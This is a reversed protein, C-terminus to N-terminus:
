YPYPSTPAPTPGPAPAPSTASTSAKATVAHWTGGFSQIGNGNAQGKASDGAFRYLPEGRLAVQFKGDPRKFVSLKGQIGSAARVKTHLSKVTLPPWFGECQTSKCLLHSKTEPSLRYLTRGNKADVVVTKNLAANHSPKITPRTTAGVAVATTAALAVLATAISPTPKM